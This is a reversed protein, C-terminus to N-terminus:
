GVAQWRSRFESLSLDGTSYDIADQRSVAIINLIQDDDCLVLRIGFADEASDDVLEDQAALLPMISDITDRLSAGPAACVSVLSTTGLTTQALDIEESYLEFGALSAIVGSVVQADVDDIPVETPEPLDDEDDVDIETPEPEVDIEETPEIVVAPEEELTETPEVVVAPEETPDEATDTDLLGLTNILFFAGIVLLVLVLVTMLLRLFVGRRERPAEQTLDFDDDDDLDFDEGFDIEDDFSADEDVLDFELPEIDSNEIEFQDGTDQTLQQALEDAGPYQPDLRMVNDLAVRAEVPDEVAHAYLWWADPNGDHTELIPELVERAKNLQGSEILEYADTLSQSVADSM